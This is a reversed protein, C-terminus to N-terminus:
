RHRQSMCSLHPRGVCLFPVAPEPCAPVDLCVDPNPDKQQVPNYHLLHLKDSNLLHSLREKKKGLPSLSPSLTALPVEPTHCGALYRSGHPCNPCLSQLSALPPCNSCLNMVISTRKLGTM